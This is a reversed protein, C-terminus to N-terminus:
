EDAHLREINIESRKGENEPRLDLNTGNYLTHAQRKRWLYSRGDLRIDM